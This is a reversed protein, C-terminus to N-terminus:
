NNKRDVLNTVISDLKETFAEFSFRQQVRKRGMSGMRQALQPDRILKTIADGFEKEDPDCLFGTQDNVITETPGGSNVAVVPKGLYMGELPVIGFHENEPTYLLVQCRTLLWLKSADSPSKLFTIKLNLSMQEAMLTLEEYHELNEVNRPDYGGAM